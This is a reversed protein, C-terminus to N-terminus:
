DAALAIDVVSSDMGSMDDVPEIEVESEVKRKRSIFYFAVCTAAITPLLIKSM